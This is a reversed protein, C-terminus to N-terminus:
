IINKFIFTKYDNRLLFKNGSFTHEIMVEVHLLIFMIMLSKMSDRESLMSPIAPSDEARISMHSLQSDSFTSLTLIM